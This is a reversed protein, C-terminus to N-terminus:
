LRRMWEEEKTEMECLLSIVCGRTVLGGVDMLSQEFGGAISFLLIVREDSLPGSLM